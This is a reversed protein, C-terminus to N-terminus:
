VPFTLTVCTGGDRALTITGQLQAILMRVLRLGLSHTQRFDLAAPFGIGTDRVTLTLQGAPEVRLTITVAGSRPAPFAHKLCNSLLEHCLLGCLIATNVDLEVEDAQISLHIRGLDIRYFQFLHTALTTLYRTLQLRGPDGAQSLLEHVLAMARIREQCDQLIAQTPPDQLSASQLYLLNAIVQLNNKVRHHLEKFRTEVQGLATQLATNAQALQATRTQVQQEIAEHVHQWPTIDRLLWRLGIVQGHADRAPAVSVSAPFAAKHRPQIPVGWEHVEAGNQLWTVQELFARRVETAVFVALPKRMLRRQEINLLAAAARNAEQICGHLDTVLYGDPALEFLEQYRLQQRLATQQAQILEDNVAQLEECAVDLEELAEALSPPPPAVGCWRQTLEMVQHRLREIADTDHGSPTLPARSCRRM